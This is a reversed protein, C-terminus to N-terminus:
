AQLRFNDGDAVIVRTVIVRGRYATIWLHKLPRSFVLDAADQNGPHSGEMISGGPLLSAAVRDVDDRHIINAEAMEAVKPMDQVRFLDVLNAGHVYQEYRRPGGHKIHRASPLQDALDLRANDHGHMELGRIFFTQCGDLLKAVLHSKPLNHRLGFQRDGLGRNRLFCLHNYHIDPLLSPYILGFNMKTVPPTTEETPLPMVTAEMPRRRLALSILRDM